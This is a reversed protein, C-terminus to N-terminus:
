FDRCAATAQLSKIRWLLTLSLMPNFIFLFFSLFFTEHVIFLYFNEVIHHYGLKICWGFASRLLSQSFLFSFLFSLFLFFEASLRGLSLGHEKGTGAWITIV